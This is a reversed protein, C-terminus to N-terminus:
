GKPPRNDHSGLATSLEQITVTVLESLREEAERCRLEAADVRDQALRLEHRYRKRAARLQAELEDIRQRAARIHSVADNARVVADSAEDNAGESM